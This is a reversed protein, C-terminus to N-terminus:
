KRYKLAMPQRIADNQQGIGQARDMRINTKQMKLCDFNLEHSEGKADQKPRCFVCKPELCLMKLDTLM